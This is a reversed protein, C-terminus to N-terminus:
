GERMMQALKYARQGPEDGVQIAWVSDLMEDAALNYDKNELAKRMGVFAKLGRIGLNYAMNILVDQRAFSLEKWFSFVHQLRWRLKRVREELIMSAERETIGGTLAFGYGITWIGRIDKYPKERFGEDLKLQYVVDKLQEYSGAVEANSDVNMVKGDACTAGSRDQHCTIIV